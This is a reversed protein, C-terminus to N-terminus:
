EAALLPPGRCALCFAVPDTRGLSGSPWAAWAFPQTVSTGLRLPPMTWVQRTGDARKGQLAFSLRESTVVARSRFSEISDSAIPDTIPASASRWEGIRSLAAWPIVAIALV